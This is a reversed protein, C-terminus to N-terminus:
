EDSVESLQKGYELGADITRQALDASPAQDFSMQTYYSIGAFIQEHTHMQDGALETIALLAHRYSIINEQVQKQDIM